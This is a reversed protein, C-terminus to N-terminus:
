RRTLRRLMAAVALLTLLTLLTAVTAALETEGDRFEYRFMQLALVDAAGGVGGAANTAAIVIDFLKLEWLITMTVVVLTIPKLLPFTIRWFTRFPSAGDIRAAEFYERPITTLGASYIILSFGLWMWVSGFILGYLLTSPSAMWSGSLDTFGLAGFIQPIIGVGEEFLYRLIVGGVIMPTVMGLFISAKVISAGRAERLLLALLLGGFLTLPLHIAIWIANHVLTGYPPPKPLDNLNITDTSSLVSAWNDLNPASRGTVVLTWTDGLLTNTALAFGGFCVSKGTGEDYAMAHGTRRDPVVSPEVEQWNQSAPDYVWTEAAARGAFLVVLNKGRDYTMAHGYRSSPSSRPVVHTWNNANLDYEWTDGRTQGDERGGFLVMRDVLSHYVMAHNRRPDPRVASTVNTWSNTNFDYTWTQSEAPGTSSSLGGFLIVRDSEADYALTHGSLPPPSAPPSRLSWSGSAADFAWTDGYTQSGLRGGFLITRDSERDYALASEGRPSPAVGPNVPIWVDAIADYVWTEDNAITDDDPDRFGGFLVVRGAQADYTMAHGVRPAPSGLPSEAWTGVIPEAPVFSLTLTAFIPYAIFVIIFVAAPIFFILRSGIQRRRGSARKPTGGEEEIGGPAPLARRRSLWRM